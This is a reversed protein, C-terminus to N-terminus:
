SCAPPLEIASRQRDQFVAECKIGCRCLVAVGDAFNVGIHEAEHADSGLSLATGGLEAYRRVAWEPPMTELMGKRLPSLNVEPVLDAELCTRLIEDVLDRHPEVAFDGHYRETYRKVLDLHGLVDFARRGQEKLRRAFQAAALTTELCRRTGAFTDYRKWTQEDHLAWGDFWHVSLLVVDFRHQELYPLIRDTMQEPQYCVEIGHGIFIRAGFQRRLAAIMGAIDAYDYRCRDWESPHTDFHETFTLGALGLELARRVNAAPDAASDVSHWSHLHQDFLGNM